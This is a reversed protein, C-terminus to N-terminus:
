EADSVDGAGQDAYLIAVVQGSMPVPVALMERGPPLEAFSPVSAKTASDASVAAGTRAAEAILGAGAAPVDFDHRGDLAAGFGIFRWGRLQGGRVLLLGVRKAERGASSTLADLIESLSKGRDIARITEILRENAAL